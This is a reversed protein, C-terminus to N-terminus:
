ILSYRPVIIVGVTHNTSIKSFYNLEDSIARFTM